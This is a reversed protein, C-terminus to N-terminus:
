PSPPVFSSFGPMFIGPLPFYILHLMEKEEAKQGM